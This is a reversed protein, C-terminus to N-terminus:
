NAVPEKQPSPQRVDGYKKLLANRSIWLPARPRVFKKGRLGVPNYAWQLGMALINEGFGHLRKGLSRREEEPICEFGYRAAVRPFADDGHRGVFMSMGSFARLGALRPDSEMARALQRFSDRMAQRLASAWALDPGGNPVVVMHENWFHLIGVPEGAKVRTGDALEVDHRAPEVSLRLLCRPDDIFEFIGQKRRLHADIRRVLAALPGRPLGDQPVPVLRGDSRLVFDTGRWHVRRGVLGVCWVAVSLLDRLPLWLLYRRERQGLLAACRWGAFWRIALAAPVAGWAWHWVGSFGSAVIALALTFTVLLGPYRVPYAARIGRAWRVERRRQEDFRTPGLVSAVVYDSLCVRLGLRVIRAAIENDDLLHDAIATYGGVRELDGRRMALTAGLGVVTGLRWALAASPAFTTDMHLAALCAAVDRPSQGRYLCTVLGVQPDRLPAVVRHLYDPTVRIDSDSIVLVDGRAEAALSNLIAAKPNVGLPSAVILRIAHEPFQRSIQEILEVAPDSAHAVGFLIEFKPYGQRCFSLFNHIAGVDVGKVPKLISVMPEFPEGSAPAPRLVKRLCLLAALWYGCSAACAVLAFIALVHTMM